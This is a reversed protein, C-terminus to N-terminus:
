NKDLFIQNINKDTKVGLEKLKLAKAIITDSKKPSESLKNLANNYFHNTKEIHKGIELLDDTFGVIKNYLEGGVKSIELFNNKADEQRWIYAITRLTAIITSVSMLIINKSLAKEILPMDTNLALSLASEIPVFMIVFDVQNINLKDYNKSNLNNIHSYISDLHSKLYTNKESELASNFYKEYSVLSVKSDIIINKNDPLNIVCDPKLRSDGETIFTQQLNYHIGKKLGSLELIKELQIEGWNGQIKSDGKLANTLNNADDSIKKNLDMLSKIETKLSARDRNETDYYKEVKDKFNKLEEKVPSLINGIHFTNSNIFEQSTEKFIKNALNEFKEEFIVSDNKTKELNEKLNLIIQEKEAIKIKLDVNENNKDEIQKNLDLNEINKADLKRFFIKRIVILYILLVLIKIILVIKLM